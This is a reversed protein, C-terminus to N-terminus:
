AQKLESLEGGYQPDGFTETEVGMANALAVLVGNHPRKDFKLARGTSFYGGCSGALLMPMRDSNHAGGDHANNMYLLASNDLLRQDGEQIGAMRGVLYAVQEMYFREVGIKLHEQERWHHAIEHTNHMNGFDGSPSNEAFEGGLFGTPVTGGHDSMQIVVVRTLDCALAAVALDMQARITTPFDLDDGPMIPATCGVSSGSLQQELDRITQLHAQVKARDETGLNTQFAELEKTVFDLVSRRDTRLRELESEGLNNGAFLSDFTARPDNEPTVPQDAGRFILQDSKGTQTKAGLNLSRFQTAIGQAVLGDAVYQDLSPGDAMKDFAAFRLLKKGTLLAPYNDHSGGASPGAGGFPRPEDDMFCKLQLGDLVILDSKYPELPATMQPLTFSAGTQAPWWEEDIVGNPQVVIVLRKPSLSAQAPAESANLLPLAAGGIGLGSLFLRRSVHPPRRRLRIM